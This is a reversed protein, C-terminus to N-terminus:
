GAGAKQERIEQLRLPMKDITRSIERSSWPSPKRLEVEGDKGILALQFGRPRLTQRVDSRADPDTDTIVIVDREILPDPRARLMQMQETFRPDIPADAFVVVLRNRWRFEDLSVGEADIITLGEAGEAEAGQAHAPAAIPALLAAAAALRSFTRRKM